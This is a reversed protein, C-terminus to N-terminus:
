IACGFDASLEAFDFVDVEGDGNLDADELWSPDGPTSGFAASLGAFDFVDTTGDGNVDGACSPAPVLSARFAGRGHTFAVLTDPDQFVLTETITRPAGAMAPAWTAGADESAFVGSETGLYLRAPDDPKVAIWHAPIDPIGAEAVGDISVWTAGGDTTRYVHEVGFTSCTAYAVGPDTPDVAISSIWGQEIPLGSGAGALTWSPVASRAGTTRAVYGDEFGLYVVDPDSPAFAIASISGAAPWPRDQEFAPVGPCALTWADAGDTTRWPRLGGTWLTRPDHPSMAVPAIFLGTTDTIGDVSLFFSAGGDASKWIMPFFQTEAYIVSPNTPDILTYGGDGGLIGAWGDPDSASSVMNTGNDQTGGAFRDIQPSADGHYFQTVGYGNNLGTWLVGALDSVLAPCGNFSVPARANDSRYIGGDNTLYLTTNTEGDYDPHFVLGHADAHVGQAFTDRDLWWYGAVGFTRGGDDSRFVDVGGVWVTDPDTPDVAVAHDYWGQSYTESGFCGNALPLNSLLWPNIGNPDPSIPRNEWTDGGDTSRFVGVLRGVPSGIGNSAMSAYVVDQDSPALAVEIRGQDLRTLTGAGLRTWTDGGDTSRFLGESEFSGFTAFVTDPDTDDRVDLDLCGVISSAARVLTWSAGADTSRLVGARTGAYVRDPDNPSIALRNVFHFDPTATSALRTWTAGADTTKFIGLGRHTTNGFVGEGTGAYLTAPDTPDLALSAVALNLMTDDLPAWSAGADASKWVGGTVGGAYLVDPDTPDIVLARTRGGINGPGLETWSGIGGVAARDVRARAERAGLRGAVGRVHDIPYADMGAPLRQAMFFELALDPDNPPKPGREALRVIKEGVRGGLAPDLEALPADPSAGALWVIGILAAPSV